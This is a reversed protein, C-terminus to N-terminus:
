HIRKVLIFVLYNPFVGSSFYRAGNLISFKNMLDKTLANTAIAKIKKPIENLENKNSAVNKLKDDFHTM